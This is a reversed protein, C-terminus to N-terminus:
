IVSLTKKREEKKFIQQVTASNRQTEVQCTRNRPSMANALVTSSQPEEEQHFLQFWTEWPGPLMTVM